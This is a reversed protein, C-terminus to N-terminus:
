EKSMAIYDVLMSDGSELVTLLLFSRDGMELYDQDKQQRLGNLYVRLSDPEYDYKTHFVGPHDSDPVPTEGSVLGNRVEDENRERRIRKIIVAM